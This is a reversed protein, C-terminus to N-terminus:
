SYNTVFERKEKLMWWIVHLLKSAAAVAAKGGGSNKKIRYYFMSIDSHPAYRVHSHVCEVLIWRLINDGRRTIRGHHVTDASSRVSPVLGAYASLKESSRFREIGDIASAIILATYDGVGPISKLLLADHNNKVAEAIRVDSKIIVDNLFEITALYGEIRYDHMQRLQAIWRHTFSAGTPKMSNQLLIGHVSNKMRARTEVMTHRYRVLEREKTTKSDTVHCEAIYGGRLMDALIAADVKDTKKKSEAILKTTYPNSLIVDLGMEDKMFHFTDKWVSSSEIVYKANKPMRSIESDVAGRTHRFKYNCLLTGKEDVAAMQITNKHLDLGVYVMGKKKRLTINKNANKKHAIKKNVIRKHAIKKNVIRKHAIKKNVIRKHAIKKNVIRKHAIRKNVIRKNVIKKNVIRKHAIRKNVIRKNVIRKNVIRKNVIRKNVIRKHTIRKDKSVIKRKGRKKSATFENRIGDSNKSRGM